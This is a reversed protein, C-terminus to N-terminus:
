MEDHNERDQQDLYRELEEKTRFGHGQHIMFKALNTESEIHWLDAAVRGFTLSETPEGPQPNVVARVEAGVPLVDQMLGKAQLGLPKESPHRTRRTEACWLDSIRVDAILRFEVEVTDGDIVRLVTGDYTRIPDPMSM